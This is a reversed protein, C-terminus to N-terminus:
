HQAPSLIEVSNLTADMRQAAEVDTVADDAAKAARVAYSIRDMAYCTDDVVARYNTVKISQSMGADGSTYTTWARHNIKTVPMRVGNGSALGYTLCSAVVDPHQSRGIQVVESVASGDGARGPLTLRVVGQGEGVDSGDWVVRWGRQLLARGSFDNSPAVRAPRQLRIDGEKSVYIMSDNAGSQCAALGACVMSLLLVSKKM